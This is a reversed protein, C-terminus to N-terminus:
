IGLEKLQEDRKWTLIASEDTNAYDEWWYIGRKTDTWDFSASIFDKFDRSHWSFFTELSNSVFYVSRGGSGGNSKEHNIGVIHYSVSFEEMWEKQIGKAMLGYYYSNQEGNKIM